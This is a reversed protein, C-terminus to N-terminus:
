MQVKSLRDIYEDLVAVVRGKFPERLGEALDRQTQIYNYLQDYDGISLAERCTDRITISLENYAKIEELYALTHNELAVRNIARQLEDSLKGTIVQESLYHLRHVIADRIFDAATKYDPVTKSEIIAAIRGAVFDPMRVHYVTSHGQQDKSRTYYGDISYAADETAWLDMGPMPTITAQATQAPKKSM